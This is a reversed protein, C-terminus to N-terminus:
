HGHQKAWWWDVYDTDVISGGLQDVLLAIQGRHYAAHGALQEVQVAIPLRFSEEGSETFEFNQALQNETLHTLYDTWRSDLAAFRPTLTALDCQTDWWAVERQGESNMRELWNERCDALHSALTVAQQFRAERRSAEPISGLMALMKQTCDKEYDYLARYRELLSM